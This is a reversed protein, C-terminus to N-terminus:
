CTNGEQVAYDADAGGAGGTGRVSGKPAYDPVVRGMDPTHREFPSMVASLVAMVPRAKDMPVARRVRACASEKGGRAGSASWAGSAMAVAGPLSVPIGKLAEFRTVEALSVTVEARVAGGPPLGFVTAAAQRQVGEVISAPVPGLGRETIAVRNFDELLPRYGPDSWLPIRHKEATYNLYSDRYAIAQLGDRQLFFRARAEQALEGASKAQGHPDQAREFAVYRSAQIAAHKVDAYRALYHVGLVMPALVLLCVLFETTAQGASRQCRRSM